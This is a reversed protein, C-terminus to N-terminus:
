PQKDHTFEAAGIWYDDSDRDAIPPRDPPGPLAIGNFDYVSDGGFLGSMDDLTGFMFNLFHVYSDYYEDTGGENDATNAAQATDSFIALVGGNTVLSPVSCQALQDYAHDDLTILCYPRKDQIDEQSSWVEFLYIHNLANAATAGGEHRDNIYNQFTSSQSILTRASTVALAASSVPTVAM